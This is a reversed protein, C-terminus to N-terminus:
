IKMPSKTILQGTVTTGGTKLPQPQEHLEIKSVIDNGVDPPTPQSVLEKLEKAGRSSIEIKKKWKTRHYAEHTLCNQM